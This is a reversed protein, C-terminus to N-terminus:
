IKGNWSRILKATALHHNGSAFNLPTMGDNDRANVDAGHELLFKVVQHQGRASVYHLCTQGFDTRRNVDAGRELLVKMADLNGLRAAICLPTQQKYDLADPNLGCGLLYVMVEIHGKSCALHLLSQKYIYHKKPDVGLEVLKRLQQLNNTIVADTIRKGFHRPTQAVRSVANDVRPARPRRKSNTRGCNTEDFNQDQEELRPRKASHQGQFSPPSSSQRKGNGSRAGEANEESMRETVISIEELVTEQVEQVYELQGNDNDSIGLIEYTDDEPKYEKLFIHKRREARMCIKLLQEKDSQSDILLYNVTEADEPIGETECVMSAPIVTAEKIQQLVENATDASFTVPCEVQNSQHVESSDQLAMVAKYGPPWSEPQGVVPYIQGSTDDSSLNSVLFSSTCSATASDHPVTIVELKSEPHVVSSDAELRKVIEKTSSDPVQQVVGSSLAEQTQQLTPQDPLTEYIVVESGETVNVLDMNDDIDGANNFSNELRETVESELSVPHPAGNVPEVMVKPGIADSSPPNSQTETSNQNSSTQPLQPSAPPQAVCESSAKTSPQSTSPSGSNKRKFKSPTKEVPTSARLSSIDVKNSISISAETKDILEVSTSQVEEKRDRGPSRRKDEKKSSKRSSSSSSKRSDRSKERERSSSSSGHKSKHKESKSQHKESSTKKRESSSNESEALSASLAQCIQEISAKHPTKSSSKSKDKKEQPNVVPKSSELPLASTKSSARSPSGLPKSKSPKTQPTAPKMLPSSPQVYITEESVNSYFQEDFSCDMLRALVEEAEDANIPYDVRDDKDNKKANKKELDETSTKKRESSSNKKESSTKKRESSSNKKSSKKHSKSSKPTAKTKESSSKGAPIESPTPIRSPEQADPSKQSNPRKEHKSRKESKTESTSDYTKM